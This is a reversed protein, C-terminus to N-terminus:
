NEIWKGDLASQLFIYTVINVIIDTNLNDGFMIAKNLDFQGKLYNNLNESPKGFGTANKGTIM